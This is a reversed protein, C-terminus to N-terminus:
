VYNKYCDAVIKNGDTQKKPISRGKTKGLGGGHGYKYVKGGGMKKKTSRDGSYDEDIKKLSKKGRKKMENEYLRAGPIRGNLSMADEIYMFTEPAHKMPVTWESLGTMDKYPNTRNKNNNKRTTERYEKKEPSYGSLIGRAEKYAASGKKATKVTKEAWERDEQDSM